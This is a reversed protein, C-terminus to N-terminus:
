IIIDIAEILNKGFTRFDIKYFFPFCSSFQEILAFSYDFLFSFPSYFFPFTLISIHSAPQATVCCLMEGREMRVDGMRRREGGIGELVGRFAFIGKGGYE